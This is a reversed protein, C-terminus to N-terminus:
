DNRGEMKAKAEEEDKKVVAEIAANVTNRLADPLLSIGAMMGIRGFGGDGREMFRRAVERREEDSIM